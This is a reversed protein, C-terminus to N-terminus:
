EGQRFSNLRVNDVVTKGVCRGQEIGGEIGVRFHIGGYLRSIAAENAAHWFSTFSRPQLGRNLGTDDTFAVPGFLRTLVTAAAASVISHGSPYEPFPPTEILPRWSRRIYRNIYTVPRILMIRYKTEWGAIFSDAAAMGLMAYMEATRDLTLNLRDVMLGAILMWHGAPTGSIGPTDVWFFAIEQQEATLDEGTRQTEVAQLYFTSDPETSFELNLPVACSSSYEMMFPRIQGWYPEVPTTGETTLVWGAEGYDPIEYEPLERIAAYGDEAIWALLAESLDEAYATSFAVVEPGVEAEREARVAEYHQKLLDLTKTQTEPNVPLLQSMVTYLSYNAVTLWDHIGEPPLPMDPMHRIQGALTFNDQMGGLLSEYLTVGAYGYIRAGMPPNIGEAYVRDYILQMWDVAFHPDLEVVPVSQAQAQAERDLPLGAILISILVVITTLHKALSLM